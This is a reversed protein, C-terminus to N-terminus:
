PLKEWHLYDCWVNIWGRATVDDCVWQFEDGHEELYQFFDGEVVDHRKEHGRPWEYDKIVEPDNEVSIATMAPHRNLLMEQLDGNGLGGFLVRGYLMTPAKFVGRQRGVM